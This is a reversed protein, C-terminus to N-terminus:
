PMESASNFALSAKMDKFFHYIRMHILELYKFLIKKKRVGGRRKGLFRFPGHFTCVQCVNAFITNM